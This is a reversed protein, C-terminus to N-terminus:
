EYHKVEKQQMFVPIYGFEKLVFYIKLRGKATWKFVDKKTVLERKITEETPYYTGEEVKILNENKLIKVLVHLNLAYDDAIERLTVTREKECFIVDIYDSTPDIDIVRREVFSLTGTVIALNTELKNIRKAQERVISELRAVREEMTMTKLDKKPM